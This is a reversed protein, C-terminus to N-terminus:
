FDVNTKMFKLRCVTKHVDSPLSFNKKKKKKWLLM